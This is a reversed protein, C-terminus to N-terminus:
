GEDVLEGEGILIPIVQYACLRKHRIQAEWSRAQCKPGIQKNWLLGNLLLILDLIIHELCFATM